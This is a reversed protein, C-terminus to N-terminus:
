KTFRNENNYKVILMVISTSAIDLIMGGIIKKIQMYKKTEKSKIYFIDTKIHNM